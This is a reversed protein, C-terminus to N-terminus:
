NWTVSDSGNANRSERFKHKASSSPHLGMVRDVAVGSANDEPDRFSEVESGIEQKYELDQRKNRDSEAKRHRGNMFCQM